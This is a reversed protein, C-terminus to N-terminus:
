NQCKKEVNKMANLEMKITTKKFIITRVLRHVWCFPLMQPYKKLLPYKYLMKKKAPCIRGVVYRFKSSKNENVKRQFNNNIRNKAIGYIGSTIIYEQIELLQENDGCDTVCTIKEEFWHYALAECKNKFQKLQLKELEDDIYLWNLQEKFKGLFVYIDMISRIGSGCVRYHKYLHVIFYVYYDEWTMKYLFPNDSDQFVRDWPAQYYDSLVKFELEEDILKYHMEVNMVPKKKYIDHNTVGFSECYYGMKTFVEKVKGANESEMMIDLDSMIRMDPSPYLEKMYCGKLPVIKIHAETLAKIICDREHLQTIGKIIARNRIAGWKASLEKEPKDILKEISIYAINAVSHFVALELIDEFKIATPKEHPKEGTLGCKLLHILYDITQNMNEKM